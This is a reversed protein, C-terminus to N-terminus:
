RWVFALVTLLAGWTSTADGGGRPIHEGILMPAVPLSAIKAVASAQALGALLAADGTAMANCYLVGVIGGCLAFAAGAAAAIMRRPVAGYVLAAAASLVVGLAADTELSPHWAGMTCHLAHLAAGSAILLVDHTANGNCALLTCGVAGIGALMLRRSRRPENATDKRSPTCVDVVLLITASANRGALSFILGNRRLVFGDVFIRVYRVAVFALMKLVDSRSSMM